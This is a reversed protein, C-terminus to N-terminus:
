IKPRKIPFNNNNKRYAQAIPHNHSQIALIRISISPYISSQNPQRTGISQHGGCQEAAKNHYYKSLALKIPM